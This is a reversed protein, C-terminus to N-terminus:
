WWRQRLVYITQQRCRYSTFSGQGSNLMQQTKKRSVAHCQLYVRSLPSPPTPPKPDYINRERADQASGQVAGPRRSKGLILHVLEASSTPPHYLLLSYLSIINNYYRGGATLRLRIMEACWGLDTQIKHCAYISDDDGPLGAYLGRSWHPPQGVGGGGELRFSNKCFLAIPVKYSYVKITSEASPLLISSTPTNRYILIKSLVQISYLEFINYLM